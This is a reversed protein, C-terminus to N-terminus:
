CFNGAHRILCALFKFVAIAITNVANFSSVSKWIYLFLLYFLVIAM